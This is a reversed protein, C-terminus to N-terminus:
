ATPEFDASISRPLLLAAGLFSELDPVASLEIEFDLRTLETAMRRAHPARWDIGFRDIGFERLSELIRLAHDPLLPFLPALFDVPCQLVSEPHSRRLARFGKEGLEDLPGAFALQDSDLDLGALESELLPLCEAADRLQLKVAREGACLLEITDRLRLPDADSRSRLELPVRSVVLGRKVPDVRVDLEAWRLKSATFRELDAASDLGRWVLEVHEPLGRERVITGVQWERGSVARRPLADRASEFITDAHLLLIENRLDYDHVAALNEPENDVFAVIRYGSRELERMGEVKSRAVKQNMGFRNMVLHRSRFHVKWEAGLQNLSRLTADRLAESRGTNLGVATRSQLQFWRIVDLVGRFPQHAARLVDEDWFHSAFFRLASSRLESPVECRELLAEIQNEHEEIAGVGLHSFVRSGHLRDYHRLVALVRHRMDLITGDIDFVIMLRDHPYKQRMAEFHHALSQMWENM